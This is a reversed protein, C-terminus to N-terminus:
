AVLFKVEELLKECRQLNRDSLEQHKGARTTLKVAAVLRHFVEYFPLFSRIQEAEHAPIANFYAQDFIGIKRPEGGLLRHYARVIERAAMDWQLRGVDIFYYSEDATFLGNDPHLDNHTLSFSINGEFLNAAGSMWQCIAKREAATLHKRKELITSDRSVRRMQEPFFADASEEGVRGWNPGRISHLRALELAIVKVNDDSLASPKKAVGEIFQEMVLIASRCRRPTDPTYLLVPVKVGHQLLLRTANIHAEAKEVQSPFYARLLSKRTGCTIILVLSKTGHLSMEAKIEAHREEGLIVCAERRLFTTLVVLLDEMNGFGAEGTASRGGNALRGLGSVTKDTLYTALRRARTNFARDPKDRPSSM